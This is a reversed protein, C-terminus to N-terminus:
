SNLFIICNELVKEPSKRYDNDWITLVQFGLNNAAEIKLKDKEWIQKATLTKRFPHPFDDEVYTRPNAHYMDGNYEIIKMKKLDTYDYLYFSTDTKIKYEENKTAFMINIHHNIDELKLIDYFLKQSSISYGFRMNGNQTLSKNWKIQRESFRRRGEEEGYKEICIDLTFTKQRQSVKLVSQEYTYGQKEWYETRTTSSSFYKEPNLGRKLIYNESNLKQIKSINLKAEQENYGRKLWYQISFHSKSSLFDMIEKESMGKERMDDKSLSKRNVVLKSSKQQQKSIEQKARMEDYGKITWYEVCLRNRKKIEINRKSLISKATGESWGRELWYNINGYKKTKFKYNKRLWHILLSFSVEGEDNILKTYLRDYEECFCENGLNKDITIIHSVFENFTSFYNKADIKKKLFKLVVIIKRVTTM